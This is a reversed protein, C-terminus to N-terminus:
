KFRKGRTHPPSGGQRGPFAFDKPNEGRIRPHDWFCFAVYWEFFIKGAYAPTIGGCGRGVVAMSSKGRTHPPSGQGTFSSRLVILNEGRIRPHDRHRSCAHFDAFIKGAYAPTIGVRVGGSLASPSKGRTHLPSGRTHIARRCRHRNEGRIRPHDRHHFEYRRSYEM